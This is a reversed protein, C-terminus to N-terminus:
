RKRLNGYDIVVDRGEIRGVNARRIDSAQYGQDRLLDRLKDSIRGAEKITIDTYREARPMILWQRMESHDLIPALLAATSGNANEWIGIEGSTQHYHPDWQIKAICDTTGTHWSDPMDIVVRTKGTGIIDVPYQEETEQITLIEEDPRLMEGQYRRAIEDMMRAGERTAECNFLREDWAERTVNMEFDVM